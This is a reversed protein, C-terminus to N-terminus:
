QYVSDFFFEALQTMDAFIAYDSNGNRYRRQVCGTKIEKRNTQQSNLSAKQFIFRIIDKLDFKYNKSVFSRM